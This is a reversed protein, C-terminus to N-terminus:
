VPTAMAEGLVKKENISPSIPTSRTLSLTSNETVDKGIAEQIASRVFESKNLDHAKCYKNILVALDKKAYFSFSEGAMFGIFM